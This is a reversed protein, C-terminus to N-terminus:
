ANPPDDERPGIENFIGLEECHDPERLPEVRTHNDHSGMRVRRAGPGFGNPRCPCVLRPKDGLRVSPMALITELTSLGKGITDARVQVSAMRLTARQGHAALVVIAHDERGTMEVVPAKMGRERAGVPSAAKGVRRAIEPCDLCAGLRDSISSVESRM